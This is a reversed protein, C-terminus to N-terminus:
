CTSNSATAPLVVTPGTAAATGATYTLTCSGPTQANNPYVSVVGAAITVNLGDTNNVGGTTGDFGAAKPIGTATGDPWNWALTVVTGDNMTLSSGTAQDTVGRVTAASNVIAVASKMAGEIGQIKAYRADGGLNIFKPLAISALIGLILIVVILEIMTFGAQGLNKRANM